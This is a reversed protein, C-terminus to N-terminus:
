FDVAVVKGGELRVTVQPDTKGTAPDTTRNRYIWLKSDPAEDAVNPKGLAEIVEQETKRMVLQRFEERTYTRNPGQVTTGLGKRSDAAEPMANQAVPGAPVDVARMGVWGVLGVCLVLGLVALGGVVMLVILAPNTRQRRRPPPRDDFQDDEDEFENPHPM